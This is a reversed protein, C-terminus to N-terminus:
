RPRWGERLTDLASETLERATFRLSGGASETGIQMALIGQSIAFAVNALKRADLGPAMRGEKQSALIAEELRGLLRYGQAYLGHELNKESFGVTVFLQYLLLYNQPHALYHDVRAHVCAALADVPEVDEIARVCTDTEEVVLAMAVAEALAEKSRYYYYIAPPSVDVEAAVAALTLGELGDRAIVKRAADVLAKKRTAQRREKRELREEKKSLAM